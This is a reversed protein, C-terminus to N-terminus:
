RYHDEVGSIIMSLTDKKVPIHDKRSVGKYQLEMGGCQCFYAGEFDIESLSIEAGCNKCSYLMM